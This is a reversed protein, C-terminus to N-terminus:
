LLSFDFLTIKGHPGPGTEGVFIHLSHEAFNYSVAFDHPYQIGPLEVAAIDYSAFEYSFPGSLNGGQLQLLYVKRSFNRDWALAYINGYEDKTLSYVKGYSTLNIPRGETGDNANVLRIQSNERDAVFLTASCDDLVLSHPVFAGKLAFEEMVEGAASYKMVRSNCYGDSVFFEGSNSVAVETPRCLHEKDSGRHGQLGVTFILKGTPDYKYALQSDVDTTWINFDRDITLGHPLVSLGRGFQATVRNKKTDWVMFADSQIPGTHDYQLMERDARHFILMHHASGNFGMHLGAVQGMGPVELVTKVTLRGELYEETVVYPPIKCDPYSLLPAAARSQCTSFLPVHSSLMLYMNCMENNHGQGVYIPSDSDETDYTCTAMWDSGFNLKKNPDNTKTFFHPLQPDGSAIMEDGISLSINRAFSHAHVRYAYLNASSSGQMCCRAEVEVKAEKPPLVFRSNAFLDISLIKQPFETSFEFEVEGFEERTAASAPKLFHTQLVIYPANIGPRSGVVFGTDPGTDFKEAGLAWAYIIRGFDYGQSSICVPEELCDWVVHEQGDSTVITRPNRPKPEEECTYVVMHHVFEVNARPTFSKIAQSERELPMATCFYQDEVTAVSAPIMMRKTWRGEEEAATENAGRTGNKPVSAESGPSAERPGGEDDLSSNAAAGNGNAVISIVKTENADPGQLAGRTAELVDVDDSTNLNEDGASVNFVTENRSNPDGASVSFVTENRSDDGVIAADEGSSQEVSDSKEMPDWRAQNLDFSTTPKPFSPRFLFSVVWAFCVVGALVALWKVYDRNARRGGFRSTVTV